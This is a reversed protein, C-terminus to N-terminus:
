PLASNAPSGWVDHRRGYWRTMLAATLSKNPRRYWSWTVGAAILSWQSGASARMEYLCDTLVGHERRSLVRM